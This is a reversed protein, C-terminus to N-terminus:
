GDASMQCSQVSMPIYWALYIEGHLIQKPAPVSYAVLLATFWWDGWLAACKECGSCVSRQGHALRAEGGM